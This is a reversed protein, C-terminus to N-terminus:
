KFIERNIYRRYEERSRKDSIQLFADRLWSGESCLSSYISIGTEVDLKFDEFQLEPSFFQMIDEAFGEETIATEINADHLVKYYVDKVVQKKSLAGAVVLADFLDKENNLILYRLIDVTDDKCFYLPLRFTNRLQCKAYAEKAEKMKADRAKTDFERTINDTFYKVDAAKFHVFENDRYLLVIYKGVTAKVIDNGSPITSPVIVFTKGADKLAPFRNMWSSTNTSHGEERDFVKEIDKILTDIGTEVTEYKDFSLGDFVIFNFKGM